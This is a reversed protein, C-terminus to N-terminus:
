ECVSSTNGSLVLVSCYHHLVEVDSIAREYIAAHDLIGSFHHTYGGTLSTYITGMTLGYGPIVVESDFAAEDVLAGNLYLKAVGESADYTGVIHYWDSTTIPDDIVVEFYDPGTSGFFKISSQGDGERDDYYLGYGGEGTVADHSSITYENCNTMFYGLDGDLNADSPDIYAWIEFSMASDLDSMIGSAVHLYDDVGDLVASSGDSTVGSSGWVPSGYFDIDYVSDGTENESVTGSGEDLKWFGSASDDVQFYSLSSYFSNQTCSSDYCTKVKWYYTEDGTISADLELGYATNYVLTQNACESDDDLSSETGSTYCLEFHDVSLGEPIEGAEWSLFVETPSFEEDPTPSVLIPTDSTPCNGTGMRTCFERVESANLARAYIALEDISGSFNVASEAQSIDGLTFRSSTARIEDDFHDSGKLDGNVYIRAESFGDSSTNYTATIHYWDASTIANDGAVVEFYTEDATVGYFKITHESSRDEYFIGYGGSGLVDSENAVNTLLYSHSGSLNSDDPDLYVWFDFSASQSLGDITNTTIDSPLTGVDNIGDFFLGTDSIGTSDWVPSSSSSSLTWDYENGSFDSLTSGTGEDMPWWAVLDEDGTTFSYCESSTEGGNGDSITVRWSYATRPSLGTMALESETSSQAQVVESVCSEGEYVSITSTLTDSNGDSSQWSFNVGDEDSPNQGILTTTHGSYVPSDNVVVTVSEGVTFDESDDNTRTATLTYTTTQVPSMTLSGTSELSGVEQDMEASSHNNIEWTLTVSEGTQILTDAELVINPYNDVTVTLSEETLDGSINQALFSLNVNEDEDYETTDWSTLFIDALGNQDEFGSPSEMLLVQAEDAPYYQAIITVSDSVSQGDVLNVSLTEPLDAADLPDSGALIERINSVGDGDLDLNTVEYGGLSFSASLDNNIESSNDYTIDTEQYSFNNDGSSLSEDLVVNAIGVSSGDDLTYYFGLVFYYPQRELSVSESSVLDNNIVLDAEGSLEGQSNYVKLSGTINSAELNLFLSPYSADTIRSSESGSQCAASLIFVAFFLIKKIKQSM